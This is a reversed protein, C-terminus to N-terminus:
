SAWKTRNSGHGSDRAPRVDIARSSGAVVRLHGLDHLVGLQYHVSSTSTLGIAEGIERITPPYGHQDAYDVAFTLLARQRRTLRGIATPTV